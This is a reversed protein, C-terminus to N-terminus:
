VPSVVLRERNGQIANMETRTLWDVNENHALAIQRECHWVIM